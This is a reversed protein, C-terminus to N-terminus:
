FGRLKRLSAIRRVARIGRAVREADMKEAVRYGLNHPRYQGCTESSCRSWRPSAVRAPESRRACLSPIVAQGFLSGISPNPKPPKGLAETQPEATRSRDADATWGSQRETNAITPGFLRCWRRRLIEIWREGAPPPGARCQLRFRLTVRRLRVFPGRHASRQSRRERALLAQKAHSSPLFGGDM